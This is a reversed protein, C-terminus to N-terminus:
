FFFMKIALLILLVGFFRKLTKVPLKHALRAGVPATFYSTIVIGFFAPWYLYGTAFDPLDQANLGGLLYGLSGTLAVPLSCAASTAIAQRTNINHWILYPTTLTGGGIGVMSSLGGILSGAAAQPAFGPLQIHPAPKINAIMYIAILLELSAFIKALLSSDLFQSGWGGLFAGLFIGVSLTKIIDWRVNGLQHHARVSASSTILITALSTGIALHVPSEFGLMLGFVSTLIPVILLGGGIGLLGALFGVVAGTSLYIILEILM